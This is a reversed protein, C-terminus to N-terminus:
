LAKILSNPFPIDKYQIFYQLAIVRDNNSSKMSVLIDTFIKTSVENKVLLLRKLVQHHLSNNKQQIIKQLIAWPKHFPDKFQTLLAEKIHNTEVNSLLIIKIKAMAWLEKRLALKLLVVEKVIKSKDDLFVKFQKPMEKLLDKHQNEWYLFAAKRILPSSSSFLKEPVKFGTVKIHRLSNLVLVTDDVSGEKKLMQFLFQAIVKSKSNAMLRIANQRTAQVKVLKLLFSDKLSHNDRILLS